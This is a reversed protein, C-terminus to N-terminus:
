DINSLIDFIRIKKLYFQAFLEYIREIDNVAKHIHNNKKYAVARWLFIPILTHEENQWNQIADTLLDITDSYDSEKSKQQGLYGHIDGRSLYAIAFHPQIEIAKDFDALALKLTEDDEKSLLFKEYYARGRNYYAIASPRHKVIYLYDTIAENIKGTELYSKARKSMVRANKRKELSATYDAIARPVDGLARYVDGRSAYADALYRKLSLTQTYDAIAEKYRALQYYAFGRKIYAEAYKPEIEIAQTLVTIAQYSKGKRLLQTGDTLHKLAERDVGKLKEWTVFRSAFLFTLILVPTMIYILARM